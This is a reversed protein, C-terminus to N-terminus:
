ADNPAPKLPPQARRGVLRYGGYGLAAVLLAAAVSLGILGSRQHLNVAVLLRLGPIQSALIQFSKNYKPTLDRTLFPFQRHLDDVISELIGEMHARMEPSAETFIIENLEPEIEVFRAKAWWLEAGARDFSISMFSKGFRGLYVRSRVDRVTLIPRMSVPDLGLDALRKKFDKRHSRQVIGIMPHRDELDEIREPYEIGYKIEGRALPNDTISNLKVQMLERGSKIDGPNTQNIRRRHRVGSKRELLQLSPTDYYTDWFEEVSQRTVLNSDLSRVWAKDEIYRQVLYNWVEEAKDIPVTIKDEEEVRVNDYGSAEFEDDGQDRDQDQAWTMVPIALAALAVVRM